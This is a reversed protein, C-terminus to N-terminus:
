TGSETGNSNSSFSWIIMWQYRTMCNSLSLIRSSILDFASVSQLTVNFWFQIVFGANNNPLLFSKSNKMCDRYQKEVLSSSPIFFSERVQQHGSPVLFTSCNTQVCPPLTIINSACVSSSIRMSPSHFRNFQVFLDACLENCLVNKLHNSMLGNWAASGKRYDKFVYFVWMNELTKLPSLFLGSVHFSNFASFVRDTLM